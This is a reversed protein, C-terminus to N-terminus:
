SCNVILCNNTPPPCKHRGGSGTSPGWTVQIHTPGTCATATATLECTCWDQQTQFASSGQHRGDGSVSLIKRSGRRCLERFELLPNTLSVGNSSLTEPDRVWCMTWKHTKTNTETQQQLFSRPHHSLLARIELYLLTYNPTIKDTCEKLLIITNPKGKPGHGIQDSTRPWRM